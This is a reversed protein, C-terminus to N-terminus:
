SLRKGNGAKDASVPNRATVVLTVSGLIIVIGIMLRISLTEGFCSIGFFLATVPELAGLVATKTPGTDKIAIAMFLFSCFSPCVALGLLCGFSFLNPIMQLEMGGNLALLFVPMGFIMAYFTLTTSPLDKLSTVKLLVMYIAYSLASLLVFIVGIFSLKEGADGLSLLCIGGIACLMGILTAMSQKVQFGLYMICCVMVPYIFLITAVLGGGIHHFSLFLFLCSLALLLGGVPMPLIQKKSQLRFSDKHLLMFGDLLVIAFLFRYFLVTPTTLGQKYLPLGFLPNMGYTVSSLIGFLAGKMKANIKM